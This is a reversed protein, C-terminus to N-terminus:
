GHSGTEISIPEPAYALGALIFSSFSIIVSCEIGKKKLLQVIKTMDKRFTLLFIHGREATRNERVAKIPTKPREQLRM